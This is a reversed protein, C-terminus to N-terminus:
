LAIAARWDTGNDYVGTTSPRLGTLLATRSPNCVPAACYSRTFSMGRSALRDLNPTKVQDHGLYHVWDRLDDIAIFLVNPKTSELPEDALVSAPYAPLLWTFILSLFLVNTKM